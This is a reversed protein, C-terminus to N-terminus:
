PAPEFPFRVAGLIINVTEGDSSLPLFCAEFDRYSKDEHWHAKGARFRPARGTAVADLIGIMTAAASPPMFSGAPLGTTNRGVFRQVEEGVLRVIYPGGRGEVNFLIVYPLLKPIQAPDFDARSPMLRDRRLAAWYRHLAAIVSDRPAELSFADGSAEDSAPDRPAHSSDGSRM